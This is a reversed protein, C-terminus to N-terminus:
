YQLLQSWDVPCDGEVKNRLYRVLFRRQEININEDAMIEFAREQFRQCSMHWDYPSAGHSAILIAAIWNM